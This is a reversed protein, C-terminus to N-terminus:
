RRPEFLSLVGPRRAPPTGGTPRHGTHATARDIMLKTLLQQARAAEIHRGVSALIAAGRTLRAIKEDLQEATM